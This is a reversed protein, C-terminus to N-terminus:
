LRSILDDLTHIYSLFFLDSSQTKPEGIDSLRACSSLAVFSFSYNCDHLSKMHPIELTFYLFPKPFSFTFFEIMEKQFSSQINVNVEAIHRDKTVKILITQASHHPHFNPQFSQVLHLFPFVADIFLNNPFNEILPSVKHNCSPSM